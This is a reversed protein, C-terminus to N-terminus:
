ESDSASESGGFLYGEHPHPGGNEDLIVEVGSFDLSIARFAHHLVATADFENDEVSVNTLMPSPSTIRLEGCFKNYDLNLDRLSSPLGAFSLTGCLQNADLCITEIGLPLKDLRVSGSFYNKSLLLKEIENPLATLNCSGSFRNGSLDIHVSDRPLSTLDVAGSMKTCNIELYILSHPLKSTELTGCVLPSVCQLTGISGPLIELNITGRIKEYWLTVHTVTGNNTQIVDQPWTRMDIFDGRDDRLSAFSKHELSSLFLEMRAQETLDSPQMRGLMGDVSPLLLAAHM